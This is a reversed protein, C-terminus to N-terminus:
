NPKVLNILADDLEDIDRQDVFVTDKFKEAEGSALTKWLPTEPVLSDDRNLLGPFDEWIINATILWCATIDGNQCAERSHKALRRQDNRKLAVYTSLQSTELATDEGKERHVVQLKSLAEDWKSLRVAFAATTTLKQMRNKEHVYMRESFKLGDTWQQLTWALPLAREVANHSNAKQQLALKFQAYALEQNGRLLWLNGKMNEVNPNHIDEMLKWANAFKGRRFYIQAIIVRTEEDGIADYDLTELDDIIRDELNLYLVLKLFPRLESVSLNKISRTRAIQQGVNKQDKQAMAVLADMWITDRERLDRANEQKCRTWEQGLKITEQLAVRVIMKLSCIHAFHPFRDLEPKDLLKLTSRWQGDQFEALALYRLATVSLDDRDRRMLQYIAQRALATEGNLLFFKAQKLLNVRQSKADDLIRQIIVKEIGFDRAEIEGRLTRVEDNGVSFRQPNYEAAELSLGVGALILVAILKM